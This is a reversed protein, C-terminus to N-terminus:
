GCLRVMEGASGFTLLPAVWCSLTVPLVTLPVGSVSAWCSTVQLTDGASRPVTLALSSEITFRPNFSSLPDQFIMQLDRRLQGWQRAPLTALDQGAYLIRGSTPRYAGLITKGLTTKGSGSEGVLGLTEGEGLEFSVGDVAKIIRTGGFSQFHTRLGDVQLLAAM